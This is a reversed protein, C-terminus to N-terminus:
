GARHVHEEKAENIDDSEVEDKPYLTVSVDDGFMGVDAVSFRFAEAMKSIRMAGIMPIGDAGILKPAYFLSMKNVLRREVFSRATGGGGEVLVGRIDRSGLENLVFPLDLGRWTAPVGVVEVGRKRLGKERGDLYKHDAFVVAPLEDATRAIRSEPSTTVRPDLVVRTIRPPEEDVDRADLTPDDARVTGAGVLVAGAEARLEHARRRSDDGTVWKSDGGAAAIRGDLTTAMKLHVFPRGTRMRWFFQENQTDFASDHAVEVEVGADRLIGISKGNMWPNPDLHGVVVREIGAKLIAEACSPGPTFHHCNCPELTVYMTAGRAKGGAKKLAMAEAHDTGPRVHWGESIVSNGRVIAAGVLPNPAATLRGREALDRALDM